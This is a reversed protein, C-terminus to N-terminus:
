KETNEATFDFGMALCAYILGVILLRLLFEDHVVFPVLFMLVFAVIAIPTFGYQQLTRWVKSNQEPM